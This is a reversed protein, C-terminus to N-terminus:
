HSQVYYIFFSTVGVAAGRAQALPMYHAKAGLVSVVKWIAILVLFVMHPKRDFWSFVWLITLFNVLTCVLQGIEQGWNHVAYFRRENGNEPYWLASAEKNGSKMHMITLPIWIAMVGVLFSIVIALIYVIIAM